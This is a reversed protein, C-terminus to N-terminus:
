EPQCPQDPLTRRNLDHNAAAFLVFRPRELEATEQRREGSVPTGREKTIAVIHNGGAAFSESYTGESAAPVESTWQLEFKRGSARFKPKPPEPTAAVPVPLEQGTQELYLEHIQGFLTYHYPAAAGRQKPLVRKLTAPDRRVTEYAEKGQAILWCIFDDFDDPDEDRLAEQLEASEIRQRHKRMLRDFARLDAPTRDALSKKLLADQRKINGRAASRADDILQWFGAVTMGM